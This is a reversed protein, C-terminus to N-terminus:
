LIYRYMTFECSVFWVHISAILLVKMLNNQVIYAFCLCKTLFVIIFHLQTNLYKIVTTFNAFGSTIKGGPSPAQLGDQYGHKIQDTCQATMMLPLFFSTKNSFPTNKLCCHFSLVWHKPYDFNSSCHFPVSEWFVCGFPITECFKLVCQKPSKWWDNTQADTDPQHDLM